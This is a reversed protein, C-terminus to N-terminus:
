QAGSFRPDRWFWNSSRIHPHGGFNLVNNFKDRCTTVQHDCGPGLSVVDGVQVSSPLVVDLTLVNGTVDQATITRLEGTAVHQLSGFTFYTNSYPATSSVTVVNGNIATITPVCINTVPIQCMSDGLVHNCLRSIVASPLQMQLSRDTFPPVSLVATRRSGGSERFSCTDVYGFWVQQGQGSRQQVSYVRVMLTQPPVGNGAYREVVPDLAPLEVTVTPINEIGSVVQLAGRRIGGAVALYTNGNWSFNQTYGTYRIVGGTAFTFEFLEVPRSAQVSTDDDVYAV